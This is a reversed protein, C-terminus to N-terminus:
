EHKYNESLNVWVSIVDVRGTVTNERTYVKTAFSAVYYGGSSCEVGMMIIVLKEEAM